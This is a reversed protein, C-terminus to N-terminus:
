FAYTAQCGYYCYGASILCCTIELALIILIFRNVKREINSTKTFPNSGNMMIATEEGTYVVIGVVWDTNKLKCGRLVM